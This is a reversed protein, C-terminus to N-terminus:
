GATAKDQPAPGEPIDEISVYSVEMDRGVDDLFVVRVEALREQDGCKLYRAIVPYTCTGLGSWIQATHSNQQGLLSVECALLAAVHPASCAPDFFVLKDPAINIVGM